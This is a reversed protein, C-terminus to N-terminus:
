KDTEGVPHQQQQPSRNLSTPTFSLQQVPLNFTDLSCVTERVQLLLRHIQETIEMIDSDVTKTEPLSVPAVFVDENVPGRSLHM